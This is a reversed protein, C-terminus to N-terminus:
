SNSNENEYANEKAPIMIHVSFIHNETTIQIMGGAKDVIDNVRRIGIGHGTKSKTTAIKKESSTNIIGDYNNEMHILIMNQYPKIYFHIYPTESSDSRLLREGAEIANNWLNGLLSSLSIPDLPFKAPTIVSYDTSIGNKEAYNVKSTLICDIAVNGTSIMNHTLSLAKGYQDTYSILEDWKEEKALISITELHIEIDHKMERLTETTNALSNFEARELEYIKQEELLRLNEEKSHGLQYIYLLLTLFLIVFFLNIWSLRASFSPDSFKEVSELTLRLIYHGISLGSIAIFIYVIKHFVSLSIDKNAIYHLSLVLVTIMAIYLITYQKRFEGGLLLELSANKYLTVPIFFTIQEAVLCVISYSFGWFIRLIFNDRYFIVSYGIDFTCSLLLTIYSSVNNQNLVCLIIFQCMIYAIMLFTKYKMESKIHLKTHIFVLFLLLELFNIIYEWHADVLTMYIRVGKKYM